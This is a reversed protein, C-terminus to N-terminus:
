EEIAGIRTLAARLYADLYREIFASVAAVTTAHDMGWCSVNLNDFDVDAQVILTDDVVFASPVRDALHAAWASVGPGGISITPAEALDDSNIRWLDSCVFVQLPPADGFMGELRQLIESRLWYALPRDCSEARLHSGTVILL